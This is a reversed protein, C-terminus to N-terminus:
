RATKRAGILFGVEAVLPHIVLALVFSATVLGLTPHVWPLLALWSLTLLDVQDWVWFAVRRVPRRATSGPAIGLRRKVFSNPLEGAMASAGMATGLLFPSIRAYDVVALTQATGVLVHKQLVVTAMSGIVAVAVGRWTKSDGFIRKGRFTRGGDIPVKWSACLDYRQVLASMAVSVLLPSFLYLAQAITWVAHVGYANCERSWCAPNTM